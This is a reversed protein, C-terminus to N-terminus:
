QGIETPYLDPRLQSRHLGTVREIEIVREAPVRRREWKCVASRQVGLKQALQDLTMDSQKRYSTLPHANM